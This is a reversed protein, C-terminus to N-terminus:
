QQGAGTRRWAEGDGAAPVLGDAEPVRTSGAGNTHVRLGVLDKRHVDRAVVENDARYPSPLLAAHRCIRERRKKSTSSLGCLTEM